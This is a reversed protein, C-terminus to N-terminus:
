VAVNILTGTTEGQTNVVPQPAAAEAQTTSQTRAQSQVANSVVANVTEGVQSLSESARVNRQAGTAVDRAQGAEVRLTRAGEQARDANTQAESAKESLARAEQNAQDAFRRAQQLQLQAWAAQMAQDTGSSTSTVSM